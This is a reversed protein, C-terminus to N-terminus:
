AQKVASGAYMEGGVRPLERLTFRKLRKLSLPSHALFRDIPRDLHCNGAVLRQLPTLWRQWRAVGPEDSLGHELFLLKGGPRLVRAAEALSAAVDRVSCLTFTTVVCDCSADALPLAEARGGILEVPFRCTAIRRAVRRPLMAVPDVAVLRAVAPTYHPLNLGTGFGIEVVEGGAEALVRKRQEAVFPQQLLRDM